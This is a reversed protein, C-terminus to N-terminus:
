LPRATALWRCRICAGRAGMGLQERGAGLSVGKGKWRQM